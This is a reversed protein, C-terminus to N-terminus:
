RKGATVFIPYNGKGMRMKIKDLIYKGDYEEKLIDIGTDFIPLAGHLYFINQIDKHKGWRLESYERDEEPIYEGDDNELDRGFGDICNPIENRM